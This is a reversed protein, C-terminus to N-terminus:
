PRWEGNCEAIIDAVEDNSFGNFGLAVRLTTESIHGKIYIDCLRNLAACETTAQGLVSADQTLPATIRM